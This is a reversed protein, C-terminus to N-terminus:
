FSVFCCYATLRPSTEVGAPPLVILDSVHLKTRTMYKKCMCKANECVALVILAASKCRRKHLWDGTFNLYPKCRVCDSCGEGEKDVFVCKQM